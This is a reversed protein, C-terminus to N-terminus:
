SIKKLDVVFVLTENPGIDPPAGQTGYAQDPPIVLERRGGVKMGAIGKDWGPIVQGQGLPFVFPQGRDWSADFEKGTSQAVGVYQVEVTDGPKAAPGKGVVIDKKELTTVPQDPVEVKPKKSLDTDGTAGGSPTTATPETTTTPAQAAPTSTSKDNDDDSGCGAVVLALLAVSSILLRRM